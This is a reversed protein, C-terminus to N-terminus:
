AHRSQHFRRRCEDGDGGAIVMPCFSNGGGGGVNANTMTVVGNNVVVGETGPANFVATGGSRKICVVGLNNTGGNIVLLASTSVSGNGPNLGTSAANLAAM